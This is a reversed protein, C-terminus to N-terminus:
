READEAYIVELELCKAVALETKCNESRKWGALMYIKNLASHHTSM